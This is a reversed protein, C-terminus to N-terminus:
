APSVSYTVSASPLVMLTVVEAPVLTVLDTLAVTLPMWGPSVTVIVPALAALPVSAASDILTPEPPPRAARSPPDVPLALLAPAALPPLPAPGLRNPLPQPSSRPPFATVWWRSSRHGGVCRTRWCSYDVLLDM